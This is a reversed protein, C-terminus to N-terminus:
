RQEWPQGDKWSEVLLDIFTRIRPSLHRKSPYIIRIPDPAPVFEELVPILAGSRLADGTIYTPLQVIGFGALAAARMAESSDISLRGQTDFVYHGDPTDFHWARPRDASRLTIIDHEHLAQPTQPTGRRALYDPSACTLFRQTGITRTLIASDDKPEGIRIAIDFGEDVLDVFRDTFSIDARLEPWQKLFIDLVPLIHRQGFSLPATLRLTGTPKSRRMAMTADVDELDEIIQRCREYMIRGEDTLSLQRTTRNLLRVGFRAELRVVSKGIASRTLGLSAAAATFSGTKVAAVFAAIDGIRNLEM